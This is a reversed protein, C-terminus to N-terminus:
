IHLLVLVVLCLLEQAQRALQSLSVVQGKLASLWGWQSQRCAHLEGQMNFLQVSPDIGQRADDPNPVM